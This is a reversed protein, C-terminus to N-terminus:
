PLLVVKGITAHNELATHAKAAEALPFAQTAPSLTQDAM